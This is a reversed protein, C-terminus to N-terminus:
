PQALHWWPLRQVCQETWKLHQLLGLHRWPHSWRSQPCEESRELSRQPVMAVVATAVAATAVPLLVAEALHETATATVVRAAVARLTVM